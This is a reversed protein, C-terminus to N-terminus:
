FSIVLGAWAPSKILVRLIAAMFHQIKRKLLHFSAYFNELLNEDFTIFIKIVFERDATVCANPWIAIYFKLHFVV